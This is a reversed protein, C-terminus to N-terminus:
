LQLGDLTGALTPVLTLLVFAPLICLVLPMLLRIPVRRAAAQVARRRRDRAEAGLQELTPLLETGYHEAGILARVLPRVEDGVQAQMEGLADAFRHGREVRLMVDSLAGTVPGFPVAAVGRVAFSVSGGGALSLRLLDIVEPLERLVLLRQRQGSRRESLIPAVGAAVAAAIGLRLDIPGVCVVSM